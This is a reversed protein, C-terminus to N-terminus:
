CRRASTAFSRRRKATRESNYSSIGVYLARGSLRGHRARGAEELPTDPRPPPLLLHRRLGAGDERPIDLSALLYKRSGRDGYPGPWMDYGAKTSGELGDRYPALDDALM